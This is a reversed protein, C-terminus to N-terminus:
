AITDPGAHLGARLGAQALEKRLGMILEVV